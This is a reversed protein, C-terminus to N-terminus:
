YRAAVERRRLWTEGLESLTKAKLIREAMPFVIREEKDFHKRSVVVAGLLLKKASRLDRVKHTQTYYQTQPSLALSSSASYIYTGATSPNATGTLTGLSSGISGPDVVSTYIMVVVGTPSGSADAMGLQVSNIVYGGANTGTQFGAALWTNDSVPNSGASTQGLNSLFTTTGQAQTIQPALLAVAFVIIINIIRKKM